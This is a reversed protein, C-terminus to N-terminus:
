PTLLPMSIRMVQLHEYQTELHPVAACMAELHDGDGDIALRRLRLGYVLHTGWVKLSM